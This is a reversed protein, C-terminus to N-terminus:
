ERRSISSIDSQKVVDYAVMLLDFVFHLSIFQHIVSLSPVSGTNCKAIITSIVFNFACVTLSPTLFVIPLEMCLSNRRETGSTEDFTVDDQSQKLLSASQLFM